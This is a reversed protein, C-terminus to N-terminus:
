KIKTKEKYTNTTTNACSKSSSKNSVSISSKSDNKICCKEKKYKDWNVNSVNNKTIVSKHFTKKFIRM